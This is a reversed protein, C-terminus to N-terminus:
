FTGVVDLYFVQRNDAGNTTDWWPFRYSKNDPSLPTQETITGLAISLQDLIDYSIEITGWMLDSYGRGAKANPSSLADKAFSQYAFNQYYFFEISANWKKAWTFALTARHTLLWENIGAGTAVLGDAVLESGGARGLLPINFNGKELVPNTFENFNKIADFSYRVQLWKLPKFTTTLGLRLGLIKKGIESAKSTPMYITGWLDWSLFAPKVQLFNSWSFWLGLDGLLLDQPRTNASDANDVIDKTIDLRLILKFSDKGPHKFVQYSPRLSLSMQWYPRADPSDGLFSGKGLLNEYIITGGVGGLSGKEEAASAPASLLLGILLTSNLLARTKM